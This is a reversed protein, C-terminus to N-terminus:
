EPARSRSRGAYSRGPWAPVARRDTAPAGGARWATGTCRRPRPPGAPEQQGGRRSQAGRMPHRSTPGQDTQQDHGSHPDAFGDREIQAVEVGLLPQDGNTLALEPFGAGKRQMGSGGGRDLLIEVARVSRRGAVGGRQEHGGGAGPQQLAVHLLRKEGQHPAHSKPRVSGGTPWPQVIKTMIRPDPNNRTSETDITPTSTNEVHQSSRCHEINRFLGTQRRGGDERQM